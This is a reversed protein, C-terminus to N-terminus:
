GAQTVVGVVSAGKLDWFSEDDKVIKLSLGSLSKLSIKQDNLRIFSEGIHGFGASLAKQNGLPM